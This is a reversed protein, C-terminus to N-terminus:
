AESNQCQLWGCCRAERAPYRSRRRVLCDMVSRGVADLSAATAPALLAFYCVQLHDMSRALPTMGRCLTQISERLALLDTHAANEKRKRTRSLKIGETLGEHADAGTAPAASEAAEQAAMMDRVLIGHGEAGGQASVSSGPAAARRMTAPAEEQVVHIEEEDDHPAEHFVRVGTVSGPRAGSADDQTSVRRTHRQPRPVAGEHGGAPKPPAKKASMPRAPMAPKGTQGDAVKAATPAHLQIDSTRRETHAADPAPGAHHAQATPADDRQAQDKARPEEKSRRQDNSRDKGGEAAKPRKSDQRQMPLPSGAESNPAATSTASGSAAKSGSTRRKDSSHGHHGERSSQRSVTRSPTRTDSEDAPPGPGTTTPPVAPTNGISGTQRLSNTASSAPAAAPEPQAPAAAVEPATQKSARRSEPRAAEGGGPM